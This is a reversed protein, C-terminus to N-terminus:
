VVNRSRSEGSWARVRLMRSVIATMDTSSAESSEEKAENDKEPGKKIGFGRLYTGGVWGRLWSAAPGPTCWGARSEGNRCQQRCLAAREWGAAEERPDWPEGDRCLPSM